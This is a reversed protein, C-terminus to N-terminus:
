ASDDADTTSARRQLEKHEGGSELAKAIAVLREVSEGVATDLARVRM